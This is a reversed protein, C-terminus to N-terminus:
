YLFLFIKTQGFFHNLSYGFFKKTGSSRKTPLLFNIITLTGDSRM